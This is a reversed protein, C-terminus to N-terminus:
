LRNRSDGSAAEKNDSATQSCTTLVDGGRSPVLSAARNAADRSASGVLHSYIDATVALNSHGLRKSVVVMPTGAALMLSANMHRLGHLTMVPLHAQKRLAEFLRTVYQPKIPSGNEYTFVYGSGEWAPGWAAREAGQALQWALLAGVTRDDLDLIRAGAKTKTPGDVQEVGATTRNRRVTIVGRAVDVDSWRLGLLEGRRMGTFTAVEFFAGLRNQAAVDLFTGIQAPEWPEFQHAETAPLRLMTAPNDPILQDITAARMAAQLVAVIRRVTTPGRGAATLDEIFANIHHRRIDELRVRGLASPRLDQEIYRAYNEATTPRLPQGSPTRHHAFWGPLYEALTQRTPKVYRGQGVKAAAENREQQAERKTSYSRGRVIVRKGTAPDTGGSIRFSWRGHKPDAMAPCARVRQAVSAGDVLAVYQRGDDDRCGCRRFLGNSM